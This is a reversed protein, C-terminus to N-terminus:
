SILSKSNYYTLAIYNAILALMINTTTETWQQPPKSLKSSMASRLIRSIHFTNMTTCFCAKDKLRLSYHVTLRQATEWPGRKAHSPRKCTMKVGWFTVTIDDFLAMVRQESSKGLWSWNATFFVWKLESNMWPPPPDTNIATITATLHAPDPFPKSINQLASPNAPIFRQQPSSVEAVNVLRYCM